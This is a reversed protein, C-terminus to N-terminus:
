LYGYNHLHEHIKNAIDRFLEKNIAGSLQRTHIVLKEGAKFYKTDVKNHHTCFWNGTSYEKRNEKSYRGIEDGDYEVGYTIDIQRENGEGKNNIYPGCALIIVPFSQIFRSNKFFELRKLIMGKALNYNSKRQPQSSLETTYAFREFDLINENNCHFTKEKYIEDILKQYNKWTTLKNFDELVIKCNIDEKECDHFATIKKKNIFCHPISCEKYNKTLCDNLSENGHPYPEKGVILINSNPNGQGCIEKRSKNECQTFFDEFLKERDM